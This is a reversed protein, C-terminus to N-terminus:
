SFGDFFGKIDIKNPNHTKQDYIPEGITSVLQDAVRPDSLLFGYAIAVTFIKTPPPPAM